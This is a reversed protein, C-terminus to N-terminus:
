LSIKKPTMYIFSYTPLTKVSVAKKKQHPIQEGERFKMETQFDFLNKQKIRLLSSIQKKIEAKTFNTLDFESLEKIFQDDTTKFIINVDNKYENIFVELGNRDINHSRIYLSLLTNGFVDQARLNKDHEKIGRIFALNGKIAAYHIPKRGLCDKEAVNINKSIFKSMFYDLDQQSLGQGFFALYHFINRGKGDISHFMENKIKKNLLTRTYGHNQLALTDMIAQGINFGFDVLLFNVSLMKNKLAMKFQSGVEIIFDKEALSQLKEWEEKKKKMTQLKERLNNKVNTIQWSNNGHSNAFDYIQYNDYYSNHNYGFTNRNPNSEKVEEDSEEIDSEDGYKVPKKRKKKQTSLKVYQHWEEEDESEEDEKFKSLVAEEILRGKEELIIETEEQEQDEIDDEEEEIISKEELIAKDKQSQIEERKRKKLEQEYRKKSAYDVVRVLDNVNAKHELLIIAVDNQQNQIAFNLPSNECNNYVNVKVNKRLLYIMCLYSGRQASYHILRNGWKDQGELELVNLALLYSFIEIPDLKENIFENGVKSFLYFIPTKGLQDKLNLNIGREILVEELDFNNSNQANTQNLSWHLANRGKRDIINVNVGNSLLYECTKVDRRKAFILLPSRNQRDVVNLNVKNRVLIHLLENGGDQCIKIIPYDKKKNHLDPSEGLELLKEMVFIAQEEMRSTLPTQSINENDNNNFGGFPQSKRASRAMYKSPRMPKRTTTKRMRSSGLGKSYQPQFLSGTNIPENMQVGPQQKELKKKKESDLLNQRERDYDENYVKVDMKPSSGKYNFALFNILSYGLFNCENKNFKLNDLFYEFLFMNGKKMLMHFVTNKADKNITYGKDKWLVRNSSLSSKTQNNNFGGGFSNMRSQAQNVMTEEVYEKKYLRVKQSFDYGNTKFIEFIEILRAKLKEEYQNALVNYNAPSYLDAKAKLFYKLAHKNKKNKIQNKLTKIRTKLKEIKVETENKETEEKEEEIIEHDQSSKMGGFQPQGFLGQQSTPRGTNLLNWQSLYFHYKTNFGSKIGNLYSFYSCVTHNLISHFANYGNDLNYLQLLLSFDKSKSILKILLEPGKPNFVMQKFFHLESKNQVLHDVNLEPHDTIMELFLLNNERLAISLPTDGAMNKENVDIGNESLLNFFSKYLERAQNKQKLYEKFNATKLNRISSKFDTMAFTHFCNNGSFTKVALDAKKEIILHKAFDFSKKTFLSIANM